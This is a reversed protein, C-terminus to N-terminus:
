DEVDLTALNRQLNLGSRNYTLNVTSRNPQVHLTGDIVHPINLGGITIHLASDAEVALGIIKIKRRVTTFVTDTEVPRGLSRTKLRTMALATDTETAPGIDIRRTIKQAIETTTPQGLTRQHVRTVALATNTGTTLGLIKTKVRTIPQCTDTELVQGVQITHNGGISIPQVLDTETPRGLVRIKQRSLAFTTNTSTVLGLTKTKVRTIAQATNTQTVLGLTKIKQRTIPQATNTQSPQGVAKIKQRTVAPLSDVETALGVARIKRRTIPQALDTETTLGLTITHSGGVSIAFTSDTETVLGLIKIKRRTITQAVDTETVLGLTRTKVRSIPQVTNSSTALGLIKTKVRSSTQATDTETILGLTKTKQRGVAFTANGSTTLGLIRIKIRNIAQATDTESPRGLPTPIRFTRDTETTLGLTRIKQRTIVFASDAESPRGVAKALRFAKDTETVLGLTRVKQRSLAFTSDTETTQGLTVTQGAPQQRLAIAVLVGSQNTAGTVTFSMAVGASATGAFGLWRPYVLATDGGMANEVYQSTSTISGGSLGTATITTAGLASGLDTPIVGACSIADEATPQGSFASATGTLPSATSTDSVAQVWAASTAIADKWSRGTGKRWVECEWEWSDPATGGPTVTPATESGSTADKGYVAWFVQGTDNGTSGTGGTGSGLLVWSQNITPITTTNYKGVVKLIMRDGTAHSPLTPAFASANAPAGSTQAVMTVAAATVATNMQTNINTSDLATDFVRFDKVTGVFDSDEASTAVNLAVGWPGGTGFNQAGNTVGSGQVTGNIYFLTQGTATDRTVAIHIWTDLTAVASTTNSNTGGFFNLRYSDAANVEVYCGNKGFAAAWGTWTGTRKVWAMMTWSNQSTNPGPLGTIQTRGGESNWSTTANTAALSRGNGSSDYAHLGVGEKFGYEALLTV